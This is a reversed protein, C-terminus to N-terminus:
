LKLISEDVRKEDDITKNNEYGIVCFFINWLSNTPGMLSSETINHEIIM